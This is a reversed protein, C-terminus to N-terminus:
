IQGDENHFVEMAGQSNTEMILEIVIIPM